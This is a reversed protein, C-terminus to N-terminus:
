ADEYEDRTMSERESQAARRYHQLSRQAEGIVKELDDLKWKNQNGGLRLGSIEGVLEIMDAGASKIDVLLFTLPAHKKEAAM